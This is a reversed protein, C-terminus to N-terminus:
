PRSRATPRTTSRSAASCTARGATVYALWKGDPSWSLDSFGDPSKTEDIKRNEKKDVDYLFLRLNKDHHAILKGDPSPVAEWRLM